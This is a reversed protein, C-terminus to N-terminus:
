PETRVYIWSMPSVEGEEGIEVGVEEWPEGEMTNEMVTRLSNKCLEFVIMRVHGPVGLIKTATNSVVTVPPPEDGGFYDQAVTRASSIASYVVSTVDMATDVIGVMTTNTRTKSWSGAEANRLLELHQTTIMKNGLAALHYSELYRQVTDGLVSIEPHTSTLRLIGAALVSTIPDHRHRYAALIAAFRRNLAEAYPPTNLPAVPM